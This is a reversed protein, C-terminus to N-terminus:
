KRRKKEPQRYGWLNPRINGYAFDINQIAGPGYKDYYYDFINVQKNSRCVDIHIKNDIQYKVLKSDSPINKDKQQERTANEYIIECGYNIPLINSEEEQKVSTKELIVNKVQGDKRM